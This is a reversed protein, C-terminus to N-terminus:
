CGDFFSGIFLRYDAFVVSEDRVDVRDLVHVFQQVVVAFQPFHFLLRHDAVRLAMDLM